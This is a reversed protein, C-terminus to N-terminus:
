LMVQQTSVTGTHFLYLTDRVSFQEPFCLKFLVKFTHTQSGPASYDWVALYKWLYNVNQLQSLVVLLDCDCTGWLQVIKLYWLGLGTKCLAGRELGCKWPVYCNFPVVKVCKVATVVRRGPFYHWVKERRIFSVFLFWSSPLKTVIKTVYRNGHNGIKSWNWCRYAWLGRLRYWVTCCHRLESICRTWLASPTLVSLEAQVPGM